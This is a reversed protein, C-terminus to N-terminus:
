VPSGTIDVWRAPYSRSVLFIPDGLTTDYM